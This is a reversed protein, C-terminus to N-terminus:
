FISHFSRIMLLSSMWFIFDLEFSVNKEGNGVDVMVVCVLYDCLLLCKDLHATEDRRV